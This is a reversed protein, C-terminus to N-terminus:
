STINFLLCNHGSGRRLPAGALVGANHLAAVVRPVMCPSVHLGDVYYSQQVHLIPSCKGKFCNGIAEGWRGDVFVSCYLDFEILKLYIRFM